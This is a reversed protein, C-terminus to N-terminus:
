LGPKGEMMRPPRKHIQAGCNNCRFGGGAMNYEYWQPLDCTCGGNLVYERLGDVYSQLGAVELELAAIRQEHDMADGRCGHM